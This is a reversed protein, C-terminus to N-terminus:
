PLGGDLTAASHSQPSPSSSVGAGAARAASAGLAASATLAAGIAIISILFWLFLLQGKKILKAKVEHVDFHTRAIQVLHVILFRRYRVGAKEKELEAAALEAENFVEAEDVNRYAERVWLAWLAFGGALLGSLLASGYAIILGTVMWRPGRLVAANQLLVGGFTFAVTNALGVTALLGQAKGDLRTERLDEAQNLRLVVDHINNVLTESTLCLRAALESPTLRLETATRPNKVL